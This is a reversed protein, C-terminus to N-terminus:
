DSTVFVRVCEECWPEGLRYWTLGTIEEDCDTCPTSPPSSPSPQLPSVPEEKEERVEERSTDLIPSAPPVASREEPMRFVEPPPPTSIVKKHAKGLHIKLGNESKFTNKCQDCKFTKVEVKERDEAEEVSVEHQSEGLSSAPPEAKKKLFAQRRRANRRQTSPSSKKGLPKVEPLKRRTDLSFSFSSGINVSFTFEQGQSALAQCLALCQSALSSIDEAAAAM